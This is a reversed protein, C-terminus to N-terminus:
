WVHAPQSARRAKHARRLLSYRRASEYARPLPVANHAEALAMVDAEVPQDASIETKEFSATQNASPFGNQLM